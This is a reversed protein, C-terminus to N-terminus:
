SRPTWKDRDVTILDGEPETTFQVTPWGIWLHTPTYLLLIKSKNGLPLLSDPALVALHNIDVAHRAVLAVTQVQRRNPVRIGHGQILAMAWIPFVALPHGPLRLDTILKFGTFRRRTLETIV